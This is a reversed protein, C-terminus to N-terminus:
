QDNSGYILLSGYAGHEFTHHLHIQRVQTGSVVISWFCSIAELNVSTKILLWGIVDM